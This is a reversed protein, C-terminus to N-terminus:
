FYSYIDIDTLEYEATFSKPFSYPANDDTKKLLLKNDGAYTVYFRQAPDSNERLEVHWAQNKAGEWIAGEKPGQPVNGDHEIRIYLEDETELYGDRAELRYKALGTTHIAIESSINGNAEVTFSGNRDSYSVMRWVGSLEPIEWQAGYPPMEAREMIIRFTDHLYYSSYTIVLRNQEFAGTYTAARLSQTDTLMLAGNDLIWNCAFGERMGYYGSEASAQSFRFHGSGDEWLFLDSWFEGIDPGEGSYEVAKWYSDGMSDIPAAGPARAPFLGVLIIVACLLCINQKKM